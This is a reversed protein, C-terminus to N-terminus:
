GSTRKSIGTQFSFDTIQKGNVAYGGLNIQLYPQDVPTRYENFVLGPLQVGNPDVTTVVVGSPTIPTNTVDPVAPPQACSNAATCSTTVQIQNNVLTYTVDVGDQDIFEFTNTPGSVPSTWSEATRIRRSMSELAFTLGDITQRQTESRRYADNITVLAVMGVSVIIAFISVAVMVEMLTFGKHSQVTLNKKM